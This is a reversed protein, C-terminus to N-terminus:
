TKIQELIACSNKKKHIVHLVIMNPLKFKACLCYFEIGFIDELFPFTQQLTQAFQRQQQTFSKTDIQEKNIFGEKDNSVHKMWEDACILIVGEVYEDTM